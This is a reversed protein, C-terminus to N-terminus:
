QLRELVIKFPMVWTGYNLYRGPKSKNPRVYKDFFAGGYFPIVQPVQRPTIIWKVNNTGDSVATIEVRVSSFSTSLSDYYFSWAYQDVPTWFQLGVPHLVPTGPTMTRFNQRGTLGVTMMRFGVMDEFNYTPPGDPGPTGDSLDFDIHRDPFCNLHFWFDGDSSIYADVGGIRDVYTFDGTGPHGRVATQNGFDDLAYFTVKLPIAQFKGTTGGKQAKLVASLGLVLVLAMLGALMRAPKM